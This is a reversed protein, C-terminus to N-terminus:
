TARRGRRSAFIKQAEADLALQADDGPRCGPNLKIGCVKTTMGLHRHRIRILKVVGERWNIQIGIRNPNVPPPHAAVSRQIHFFRQEKVAPPLCPIGPPSESVAASRLSRSTTM